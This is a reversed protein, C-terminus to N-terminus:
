GGMGDRYLFVDLGNITEPQGPLSSAEIIFFGWGGGAACVADAAEAGAALLVRLRTSSGARAPRRVNLLAEAAATQLQALRAPPLSLAHVAAALPAEALREAPLTFEALLRWRTAPRNAPGITM